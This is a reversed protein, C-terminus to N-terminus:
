AARTAPSTKKTKSPRSESGTNPPRMDAVSAYRKDPLAYPPLSVMVVGDILSRPKGQRWREASMEAAKRVMEARVCLFATAHKGGEGDRKVLPLLAEVVDVPSVDGSRYAESYELASRLVKGKPAKGSWDEANLDGLYEGERLANVGGPSARIVDPLYRPEVDELESRDRLKGFGNLSWLVSQVLSSKIVSHGTYPPDAVDM